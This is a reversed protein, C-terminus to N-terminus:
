VHQKGKSRNEGIVTHIRALHKRVSKFLHPKDIQGTIKKQRLEFWEKELARQKEVLESAALNRLDRAKPQTM